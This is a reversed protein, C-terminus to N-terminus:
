EEDEIAIENASIRIESNDAFGYISVDGERVFGVAFHCVKSRWRKLADDRAKGESRVLIETVENMLEQAKSMELMAPTIELAHLPEEGFWLVTHKQYQLESYIRKHNLALQKSFDGDTIEDLTKQLKHDTLRYKM